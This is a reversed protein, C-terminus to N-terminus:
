SFSRPLDVARRLLRLYHTRSIQIGGFQELHPTLWQTDLLAFKHGRLQEVLAVLAIKSADTVRHFMSEGFFAAGVAVGYLGGALQNEKWAEVSHAHGLEYLRTYSDIIDRNIWTNEREACAQIVSSFAKDITIEFPKRRALRRLAHPVHFDELPLIARPDPSFWEISDDNMAMPFVGLRYGQLLLEPDIM